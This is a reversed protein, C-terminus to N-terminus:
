GTPPSQPCSEDSWRWWADDGDIRLLFEPVLHGDPKILSTEQRIHAYVTEGAANDMDIHTPLRLENAFLPRVQEFGLAFL